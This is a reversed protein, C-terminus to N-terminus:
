QTSLSFSMRSIGKLRGYISRCLKAKFKLGVIFTLHSTQILVEEHSKKSIYKDYSTDKLRLSSTSWGTCAFILLKWLIFLPFSFTTLGSRKLSLFSIEILAFPLYVFASGKLLHFSRELLAISLYVVFASGSQISSPLFFHTLPLWSGELSSFM